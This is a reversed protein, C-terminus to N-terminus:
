LAGLIGQVFSGSHLNAGSRDRDRLTGGFNWRAGITLADNELDPGGGVDLNYHEYGGFVSIPVSAFQFEGGVGASWADNDDNGAGFDVTGLGINGDIRLNDNLFYRAEGNLNWATTDFDSSDSYALTAGWTVNPQFFLTELAGTWVDGDDGGGFDVNEYAVGGGFQWTDNRVFLHGDVHWDDADDGGDPSLNAYGGGVQAGFSGFDFAATADVAGVDVDFDGPDVNDHTYSLGVYGSQASAVAPLGCVLLAAAAGLILKRM